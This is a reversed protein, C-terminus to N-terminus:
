LNIPTRPTSGPQRTQLFLLLLFLVFGFFLFFVITNILALWKCKTEFRWFGGFVLFSLMWSSIACTRLIGYVQRLDVERSDWFMINQRGFRSSVRWLLMCERVMKQWSTSNLKYRAFGKRTSIIGAKINVSGWGGYDTINDRNPSGDTIAVDM